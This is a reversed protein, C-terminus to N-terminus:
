GVASITQGADIYEGKTIEFLVYVFPTKKEKSERLGSIDNGDADKGVVAKAYFTGKM